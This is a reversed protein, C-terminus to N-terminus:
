LYTLLFFLYFLIGFWFTVPLCSILETSLEFSKKM